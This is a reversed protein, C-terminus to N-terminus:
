RHLEKEKLYSLLYLPKATNIITFGDKILQGYVKEPDEAAKQDNLGSNRKASTFYTDVWARCNMQSVFQTYDYIDNQTSEFFIEIAVPDAFDIASLLDEASRHRMKFMFLLDPYQNRLSLFTQASRESWRLKFIVQGLMKQQRVIDLLAEMERDRYALSVLIKDRCVALAQEFSLLKGYNGSKKQKERPFKLDLNTLQSLKKKSIHGHASTLKSLNNDGAMVFHRDATPRVTLEVIDVGAKILKRIAPESNPPLDPFAANRAAVMIKRPDAKKLIKILKKL